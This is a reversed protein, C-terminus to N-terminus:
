DRRAQIHIAVDGLRPYLRDAREYGHYARIRGQGDRRKHLNETNKLFTDHDYIDLKDPLTHYCFEVGIMNGTTLLSRISIFRPDTCYKKYYRLSRGYQGSLYSCGHIAGASVGIIGDFDIGYKMFVDLIGATYMGRMGGGELVLGTKSM